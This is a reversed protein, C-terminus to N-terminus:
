ILTLMAIHGNPTLNQVNATISLDVSQGDKLTGHNPLVVLWTNESYQTFWTLTQGSNNTITIKQSAPQLLGQTYSFNTGSVKVQVAALGTQVLISVGIDQTPVGQGTVAVFDNYEGNNLSAANATITFFTAKGPALTGGTPSLTLWSVSKRPFASWLLDASGPNTIQVKQSGGNTFSVNTTSLNMAPCIGLLCSDFIRLMGLTSSIVLLVTLLVLGVIRMRRKKVP